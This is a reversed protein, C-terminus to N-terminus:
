ILSVQQRMTSGLGFFESLFRSDGLFILKLHRVIGGPTAATAAVNRGYFEM